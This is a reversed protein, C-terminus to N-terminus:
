PKLTAIIFEKVLKEAEAAADKLKNYTVTFADHVKENRSGSLVEVFEDGILDIYIERIHSGQVTFRHVPFADLLENSLVCGVVDRFPLSNTKVRQVNMDPIMPSQYDIGIYSLAESFDSSLASSYALIDRALLGVGAGIELLHFTQNYRFM